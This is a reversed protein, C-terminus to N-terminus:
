ALGQISPEQSGRWSRAMPEQACLPAAFMCVGWTRGLFGLLSEELALPPRPAQPETYFEFRRGSKFVEQSLCVGTERNGVPKKARSVLARATGLGMPAISVSGARAMPMTENLEM